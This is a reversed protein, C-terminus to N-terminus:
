HGQARQHRVYQTGDDVQLKRENDGQNAPLQWGYEYTFEAVAIGIANSLVIKEEALKLSVAGMIENSLGSRTTLSSFKIVEELIQKKWEPGKNLAQKFLSIRQLRLEQILTLDNKSRLVKSLKIENSAIAKKWSLWYSNEVRKKNFAARQQGKQYGDHAAKLLSGVGYM